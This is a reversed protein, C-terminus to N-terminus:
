LIGEIKTGITHMTEAASELARVRKCWSELLRIKYSRVEDGDSNVCLLEGRPFGTGRLSIGKPVVLTVRADGLNRVGAGGLDRARVCLAEIEDTTM